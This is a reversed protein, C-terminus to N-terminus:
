ADDAARARPLSASEDADDDPPVQPPVSAGDDADPEHTSPCSPRGRLPRECPDGDDSPALRRSADDDCDCPARTSRPPLVADDVDDASEDSRGSWCPTPM